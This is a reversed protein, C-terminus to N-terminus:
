PYLEVEIPHTEEGNCGECAANDHTTVLAMQQMKVNWAATADWRIDTGGCFPCVYTVRKIIVEVPKPGEPTNVVLPANM